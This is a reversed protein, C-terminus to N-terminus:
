HLKHETVSEKVTSTSRREVLLIDITPIWQGTRLLQLTRTLVFWFASQNTRALVCGVVVSQFPTGGTPNSTSARHSHFYFPPLLRNM